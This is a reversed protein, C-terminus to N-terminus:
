ALWQQIILGTVTSCDHWHIYNTWIIRLIHSQLVEELENM